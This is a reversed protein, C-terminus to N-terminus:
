TNRELMWKNIIGDWVCEEKNGDDSFIVDEIQWNEDFDNDYWNRAKIWMKVIKIEHNTSFSIEDNRKGKQTLKIKVKLYM